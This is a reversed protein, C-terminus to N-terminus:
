HKNARAVEKFFQQLKEPSKIGKSAEVGGSIDVAFPRVQEIADAVNDPTLGGALIIHPRLSAPILDWDFSEGTGGPVGPKYADLLMGRSSPYADCAQKLDLDPKVRLAKIFPRNFLRAFADTEDGHFQLLDLRTQDITHQVQEASANVFLGTTVVFPPLSKIIDAATEVSINRPSPEYFVFGLTDAGLEIALLADELRTIGCIKVRTRM